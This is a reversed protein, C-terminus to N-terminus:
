SLMARLIPLHQGRIPFCVIYASRDRCFVHGFRQLNRRAHELIWRFFPYWYLSDIRMREAATSRVCQCQRPVGICLNLFHSSPPARSKAFVNTLFQCAKCFSHRSSHFSFEVKNVNRSISEMINRIFQNQLLVTSSACCLRFWRYCCEVVLYSLWHYHYWSLTSLLQNHLRASSLTVEDFSLLVGHCYEATLVTKCDRSPKHRVAGPGVNSACTPGNDGTHHPHTGFGDRRAGKWNPGM